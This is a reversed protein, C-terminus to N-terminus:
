LKMALSQEKQILSEATSVAELRTSPIDTSPAPLYEDGNLEGREVRKLAADRIAKKDLLEGTVPDKDAGGLLYAMWDKSTLTAQGATYWLAGPDNNKFRNSISHYLFVMRLSMTKGFDKWGQEDDLGSWLQAGGMLTILGGAAHAPNLRYTYKIGKLLADAEGLESVNRFGSLFSCLGTLTIAFGTFQRKHETWELPNIAQELRHLYYQTPHKYYLKSMQEVDHKNDADDPLLANITMGSLGLLTARGQWRNLLAGKGRVLDVAAAADYNTFNKISEAYFTPRLMDNFSFSFKATNIANLLPLRIYDLSSSIEKGALMKTGNAKLMMMDGGVHTLGILNSSNNVLLAPAMALTAHRAAVFKDALANYGYQVFGPLEIGLFPICVPDRQVVQQAPTQVRWAAPTAVPDSAATSPYVCDAPPQQEATEM